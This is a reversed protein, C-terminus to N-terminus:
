CALLGGIVYGAAQAAFDANLTEHGFLLRYYVPAFLLDLVVEIDLGPRLEGTAIGQDILRAAAIKTTTKPPAASHHRPPLPDSTVVPLSATYWVIADPRCCVPM